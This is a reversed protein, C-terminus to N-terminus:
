PETSDPYSVSYKGTFLTRGFAGFPGSAPRASVRAPFHRPILCLTVFPSRM